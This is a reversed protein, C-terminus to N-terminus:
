NSGAARLLGAIADYATMLALLLFCIIWVKLAFCDGWSVARAENPAGAEVVKAHTSVSVTELRTIAKQQRNLANSKATRTAMLAGKRQSIACAQQAYAMAALPATFHSGVEERSARIGERSMCGLNGALLSSFPAKSRLFAMREAEARAQFTPDLHSDARPLTEAILPISV